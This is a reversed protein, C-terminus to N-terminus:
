RREVVESEGDDDDGHLTEDDRFTMSDGDGDGADVLTKTDWEKKGRVEKRGSVLRLEERKVNNQLAGTETNEVTYVRSLDAYRFRTHIRYVPTNSFHNKAKWTDFEKQIIVLEYPEFVDPQPLHAYNEKLRYFVPQFGEDFEYTVKRATPSDLDGSRHTKNFISM